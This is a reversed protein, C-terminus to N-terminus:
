IKTLRYTYVAQNLILEIQYKGAETVPINTGDYELSGDTNNDGLNVAWDDNARFKIEGEALDLTVKLTGTAPDYVLDTDGDWGTPTASGIIGWDTKLRTHTLKNIDVQLRYMGPEAAEINAGDPELTGDGGNDGFNKEWSPGETFKYLINADAFYLYGEYRGNNPVSYINPATKPEWGQHSGPVYLKPYEIEQEFPTVAMVLPASVLPDVEASVRAVVRVEINAQEGGAIGKTVLLNNVKQNLVTLQTANVAPGLAVPDAFNNGALDMEVTYTVGAPFGFDAASWEFTAFTQAANDETIVVSTNAAPKSFTPADGLRLVPGFEEESCSWVALVALLAFLISQKRM